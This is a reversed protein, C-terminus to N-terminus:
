DSNKKLLKNSNKKYHKDFYNKKILSLFLLEIQISIM